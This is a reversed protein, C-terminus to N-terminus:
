GSHQWIAEVSPPEEDKESLKRTLNQVDQRNYERGTKQSLCQAINRASANTSM